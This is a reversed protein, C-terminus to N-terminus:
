IWHRHYMCKPHPIQQARGGSRHHWRQSATEPVTSGDPTTTSTNWCEIYDPSWDWLGGIGTTAPCRSWLQDAGSLSSVGGTMLYSCMHSILFGFVEVCCLHTPAIKKKLPHGLNIPVCSYGAGQPSSNPPPPCGGGGAGKAKCLLMLSIHM